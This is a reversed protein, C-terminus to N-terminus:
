GVSQLVIALGMVFFVLGYLFLILQQNEDFFASLVSMM